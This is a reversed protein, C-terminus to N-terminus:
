ESRQNHRMAELVQSTRMLFVNRINEDANEDSFDIDELAASISVIMEAQAEARGLEMYAQHKADGLARTANASGMWDAAWLNLREKDVDDMVMDIHGVDIWLLVTGSGALLNNQAKLIENRFEARPDLEGRNDKRPATLYDITRANVYKRIATTILININDQWSVPGYDNIISNAVMRSMAELDHPYPDDLDPAVNDRTMIRFRYNIQCLRVQIGDRTMTQIEEIFGHQDELSVIAAPTEFPALMIDQNIRTRSVRDIFTFLVANGPQVLVNGPGGIHDILNIKGRRIQKKGQEITLHPIFLGFMSAIVYRFAPLFTKLNFVDQIFAVSAAITCMIAIIPMIMYRFSGQNFALSFPTAQKAPDIPEFRWGGIWTVAIIILLSIILRAWTANAQRFAQNEQSWQRLRNPLNFLWFLLASMVFKRIM